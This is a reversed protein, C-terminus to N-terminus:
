TRNKIYLKAAETADMGQFFFHKAIAWEIKGAFQPAHENIYESFAHM